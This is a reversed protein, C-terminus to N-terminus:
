ISCNQCYVTIFLQTLTIERNREFYRITSNEGIKTGCNAMPLLQQLFYFQLNAPVVTNVLPNNDWITM